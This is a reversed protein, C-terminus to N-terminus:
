ADELLGNLVGDQPAEVPERAMPIYEVGGHQNTRLGFRARMAAASDFRYRTDGVEDVVNGAWLKQHGPHVPDKWNHLGDHGEDLECRVTMQWTQSICRCRPM